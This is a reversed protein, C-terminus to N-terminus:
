MLHFTRWVILGLGVVCCVSIAAGIAFSAPHYEFVVEHEGAELAVARFIYDARHIPAPKGDMTAEWGPYWSDALILYGRSEANVNLVVREHKDAVVQVADRANAVGDLSAGDSLLAVRRANFDLRQMRTLMAADNAIEANHVVFARPLVTLNEWMAVTHSRFALAFESLGVLTAVSQSKGTEDILIIREITLGAGPLNSTARISKITVANAGVGYRAVYRRGQFERSVSSLFAPFVLTTAPKDHKVPSKLALGDYAWDATEIGLRLPLKLSSGSDLGLEIEGAPFGNELNATDDTYSIVEVQAARTPPIALTRSLLDLNLAYSPESAPLLKMGLFVPDAPPEIPVLYY